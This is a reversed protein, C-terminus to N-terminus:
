EIVKVSDDTIAAVAELQEAAELLTQQITTTDGEDVGHVTIAVIAGTELYIAHEAKHALVPEDCKRISPRRVWCM